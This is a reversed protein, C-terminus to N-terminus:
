LARGAIVPASDTVNIDVRPRCAAITRLLTDPHIGARAPPSPARPQPRTRSSRMATAPSTAASTVPSACKPRRGTRIRGDTTRPSSRSPSPPPSRSLPAPRAPATPASTGTAPSTTPRTSGPRYPPSTPTSATTACCNAPACRPPAAPRTPTTPSSRNSTTTDAGPPSSPPTSSRHPRHRQHRHAAPRSRATATAAIALADLPGEVLVPHRGGAQAAEHLGYFLSSKTFTTAPRRHQPVEPRHPRHVPQPRHIRRHSRRTRPHSVHGPPPIPRHAAWRIVAWRRSVTLEPSLLGITDATAAALEGLRGRHQHTSAAYRACAAALHESHGRAPHAPETIACRDLATGYCRLASAVDACVEATPTLGRAHATTVDLLDALSTAM